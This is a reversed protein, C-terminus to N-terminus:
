LSSSARGMVAARMQTHQAEDDGAFGRAQPREGLRQAAAMGQEGACVLLRQRPLHTGDAGLRDVALARVSAPTDDRRGSAAKPRRLRARARALAHTVSM